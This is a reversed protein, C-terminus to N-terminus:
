FLSLQESTDPSILEPKELLDFLFTGNRVDLYRQIDKGKIILPMRPHYFSVEDDGKCTLIVFNNKDYIGCLYLLEGNKDIFFHEVNHKDVEYFGSCPLVCRKHHFAEKFMVKEEVTESRANYIIKDHIRFGFAKTEVMVHHDDSLLIAWSKTAPIVIPNLLLSADYGPYSVLKSADSPELVFRQCM